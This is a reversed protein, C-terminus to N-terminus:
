TGKLLGDSPAGVATIAPERVFHNTECVRSCSFLAGWGFVSEESDMEFPHIGTGLDEWPLAPKRIDSIVSVSCAVKGVLIIDLYGGTCEHLGQSPAELPAVGM